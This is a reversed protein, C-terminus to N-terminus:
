HFLWVLTICPEATVYSGYHSRPKIGMEKRKKNEKVVDARIGMTRWQYVKWRRYSM